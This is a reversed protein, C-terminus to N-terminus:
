YLYHHCPYKSKRRLAAAMYILQSYHVLVLLANPLSSVM